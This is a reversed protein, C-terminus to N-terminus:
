SAAREGHHHHLFSDASYGAQPKGLYHPLQTLFANALLLENRSVSCRSVHGFQSHSFPQGSGFHYGSLWLWFGLPAEVSPHEQGDWYIRLVLSQSVDGTFWMTRIIGPGNTNVLTKTEGAELVDCPHLKQWDEGKSGCGPMGTPNEPSFVYTKMHRKTFLGSDNFM